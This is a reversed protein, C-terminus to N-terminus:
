LEERRRWPTPPPDVGVIPRHAATPWGPVPFRRTRHQHGELPMLDNRPKAHDRAEMARLARISRYNIWASGLNLAVGGWLICHEWWPM